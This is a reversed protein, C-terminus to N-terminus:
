LAVMGFQNQYFRLRLIFAHQVSSPARHENKGIDNQQTVPKRNSKM